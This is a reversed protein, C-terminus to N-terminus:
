PRPAASDGAAFPELRELAREIKARASATPAAQLYRRYLDVSAAAATRDLETRAIMHWAAAANYLLQPMPKLTYAALSERAADAYRRGAYAAQAQDFHLRDRICM